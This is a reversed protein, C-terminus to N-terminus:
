SLDDDGNDDNDDGSDDSYGSDDSDYYGIFDEFDGIHIGSDSDNNPDNKDTYIMAIVFATFACVTIYTSKM